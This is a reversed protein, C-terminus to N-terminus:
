KGMAENQARDEHYDAWWRAELTEAKERARDECEWWVDRTYSTPTQRALQTFTDQLERAAKESECTELAKIAERLKMIYHKALSKCNQQYM